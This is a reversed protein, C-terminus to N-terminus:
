EPADTDANGAAFALTALRDARELGSPPSLLARDVLGAMGAGIGVAAGLTAIAGAVRRPHRRLGQLASRLDLLFRGNMAPSEGIGTGNAFPASRPFRVNSADPSPVRANWAHVSNGPISGFSM